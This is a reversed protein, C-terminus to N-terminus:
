DGASIVRRPGAECQFWHFYHACRRRVKRDYQRGVVLGGVDRRHRRRQLGDRRREAAGFDDEDIVSRAVAREGRQPGGGGIRRDAVDRERPIEAMLLRQARPQPGRAAAGDDHHIGIEFMRGFENGIEDRRPAGAGLDHPGLAEVIGAVDRERLPQRRLEIVAEEVRDAVDVDRRATGIEHQEVADDDVEDVPEFAVINEQAAQHAPDTETRGNRM